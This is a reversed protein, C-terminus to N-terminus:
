TSLNPYYFDIPPSFPVVVLGASEHDFNSWHLCAHSAVQCRVFHRVYLPCQLACLRRSVNSTLRLMVEGTQRPMHRHTHPQRCSLPGIINCRGVTLLRNLLWHDSMWVCVCMHECHHAVSVSWLTLLLCRLQHENMAGRVTRHTTTFCFLTCCRGHSFFGNEIDNEPTFPCWSPRASSRVSANPLLISLKSAQTRTHDTCCMMIM